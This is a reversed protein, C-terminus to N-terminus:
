TTIWSTTGTKADYSARSILGSREMNEIFGGLANTSIHQRAFNFIKREPVPGNFTKMFHVVEDMVHGDYTYSGGEFAHHMGKEAELLWGKARHFDKATLHLQNGRDVCSIMGLKIVQLERRANYHQLKPHTPEPRFDDMKWEHMLTGWEDAWSFQGTLANLVMFDHIMDPPKEIAKTEIWTNMRPRDSGWILVLRSCFGQNWAAEKLTGLLNSPTTGFILSVQANEFNKRIAASRKAESYPKVEYFQTLAGVMDEDYKPMFASLEDAAIYM